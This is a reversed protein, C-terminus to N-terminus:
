PRDKRRVRSRPRYDSSGPARLVETLRRIPTAYFLPARDNRDSVASDRSGNSSKLCLASSPPPYPLGHTRGSFGKYSFGQCRGGPNMHAVWDRRNAQDVYAVPKRYSM